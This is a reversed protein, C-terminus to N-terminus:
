AKSRIPQEDGQNAEQEVRYNGKMSFGYAKTVTGDVSTFRRMGRRSQRRRRGTNSCRFWWSGPKEKDLELGGCGCRHERFKLRCARLHQL